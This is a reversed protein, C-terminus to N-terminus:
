SETFNLSMTGTKKFPEANRLTMMQQGMYTCDRSSWLEAGETDIIVHEVWVSSDGREKGVAGSM